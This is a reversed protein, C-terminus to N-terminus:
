GRNGVGEELDRMFSGPGDGWDSEYNEVVAENVKCYFDDLSDFVMKDGTSWTITIEKGTICVKDVEYDEWKGNILKLGGWVDDADDAIEIENPAQPDTSGLIEWVVEKSSKLNTPDFQELETAHAIDYLEFDNM